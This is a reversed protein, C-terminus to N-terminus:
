GKQDLLTQWAALHRDAIADVTFKRAEAIGAERLRHHLAGDDALRMLVDAIRGAVDSGEREFVLGTVGDHVYGAFQPLDSVVLAAGCAMAELPSFLM